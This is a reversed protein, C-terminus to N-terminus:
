CVPKLLACIESDSWEPAVVGRVTSLLRQVNVSRMSLSNKQDHQMEHALRVDLICSFFPISPILLCQSCAAWINEPNTM